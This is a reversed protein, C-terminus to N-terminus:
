LMIFMFMFFSTMAFVMAFMAIFNKIKNFRYVFLKEGTLIM